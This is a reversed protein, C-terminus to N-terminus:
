NRHSPLSDFEVTGAPKENADFRTHYTKVAFAGEKAMGLIRERFEQSFSKPILEPLKERAIEHRELNEIGVDAQKVLKRILPGDDPDDLRKTTFNMYGEEDMGSIGRFRNMWNIIDGAIEGNFQAAVSLFLANPRTREELGKGGKFSDATEIANKERTFLRTERISDARSFLWESQVAELTAEFGYRYRKGGQLFVAEFFSPAAETTTHLRFPTVPIPEGKQTDKSSEMVLTRFQMMAKLFNSKGGANPGYIAASKVLRQAGMAAVNDEERWDDNTAELSLTAKDKFSMFNGVTFQILM